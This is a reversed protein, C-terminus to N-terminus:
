KYHFFNIRYKTEYDHAFGSPLDAPVVTLLKTANAWTLTPFHYPGFEITRYFNMTTDDTRNFPTAGVYCKRVDYTVTFIGKTDDFKPVSIVGNFDHEVIVSAVRRSLTEDEDVQIAGAASRILVGYSM